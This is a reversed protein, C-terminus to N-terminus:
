GTAWRSRFSWGIGRRRPERLARRGARAGDGGLVARGDPRQPHAGAPRRRGRYGLPVLVSGNMKMFVAGYSDDLHEHMTALLQASMGESDLGASLRRAVTRLQTLLQRASEYHEANDDGAATIGLSRAWVGLLGGGLNTLLWPALAIARQDVDAFGQSALPVLVVAVAQALM